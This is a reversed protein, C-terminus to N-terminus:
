SLNLLLKNFKKAKSTIKNRIGLLEKTFLAVIDKSINAPTGVTVRYNIRIEESEFVFVVYFEFSFKEYSEQFTEAKFLEIAVDSGARKEVAYAIEAIEMIREVPLNKDISYGFDGDDWVKEKIRTIIQLKM